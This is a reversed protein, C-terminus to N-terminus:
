DDADWCGVFVDPVVRAFLDILMSEVDVFNDEFWEPLVLTVPWGAM